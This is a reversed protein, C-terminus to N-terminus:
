KLIKKMLIILDRKLIIVEFIINNWIFLDTIM